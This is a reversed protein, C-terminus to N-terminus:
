SKKLVAHLSPGYKEVSGVADAAPREAAAREAAPRHAVVPRHAALRDAAPRAQDRRERLRASRNEEKETM